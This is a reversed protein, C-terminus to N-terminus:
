NQTEEADVYDDQQFRPCCIALFVLDDDGRNTIKQKLGAPIIVVDGPSVTQKIDGGLEVMGSGSLIVYRESCNELYHWRTTQGPLVRARAISVQEDDNSNSLETIFCGERFFYEDAPLAKLIGAKLNM